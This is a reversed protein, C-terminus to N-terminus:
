FKWIGIAVFLLSFFILNASSGCLSLDALFVFPVTSHDLGQWNHKLHHALCALHMVRFGVYHAIVLGNWLMLNQPALNLLKIIIIFGTLLCLKDM